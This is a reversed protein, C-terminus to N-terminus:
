CRAPGLMWIGFNATAAPVEAGGDGPAAGRNRRSLGGGGCERPWTPMTWGREGMNCGCASPTARTVFRQGGWCIDAKSRLPQRMEAPCNADLWARVEARFTDLTTTDSM